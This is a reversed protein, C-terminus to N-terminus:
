APETELRVLHTLETFTADLDDVSPALFILHGHGQFTQPPVNLLDGPNRYMDIEAVRDDARAEDVGHTAVLRGARAPFINWFGVAVPQERPEIVPTRGTALDLAAAVMDVGTSLLVSKYIPGGGLRAAAELLVPETGHRLRFEVHTGGVTIDLAAHVEAAARYAAAVVDAPLRTPTCAYVEEFTPGTPLPKDHVAFSHTVGDVVLSEVSIEPGPVFEELLLAGAYEREAADHLPDKTFADWAGARFTEFHATLEARDAVSRVFMSGTGLVPKLVLPFGVREAVDLAEAVTRALGFRPQPVGAAEAAERMKFKDRALMATREGVWPLGLEAAVRAVAPVLAEAFTIVGSVPATEAKVAALVADADGVDVSVVRDVLDAEWTADSMLLVLEEGHDAAYRQARQLHQRRSLNTKHVILISM